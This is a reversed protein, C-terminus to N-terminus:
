ALSKSLPPHYHESGGLEMFLRHLVLFAVAGALSLVGSVVFTLQYCHGMADLLLGTAPTILIYGASFVLGWASAFQAFKMKPYLRQGLSATATMYSGSLVGHLVFFVGFTAASNTVFGGFLMLLGYLLSLVFGLRIPHFRDALAGLPYSLAMSIAYTLALCKGYGKLDMEMSTAFFLSFSNVPFSALAGFTAAAFLWRYYKQSFCERIYSRIEGWAAGKSKSAQQEVAPYSGERVRFCMLGFGLGYAAALGGIILLPHTEAHEIIWYNFVIAAVLGVMRFLAFFRGILLSPVVDNILGGFVTNAIISSIEFLSWFLVFVALRVTSLDPSFSGLFGHLWEGVMPSFGLGIMSIVVFPIPILLFPIRRGWAGRHRDSKVSVWPGLLMAIAAPFSGLLLGVLTDTSHLGKLMLQAIPVIAREKLNWAFDGWLLWFFLLFLGGTTYTLTGASWKRRSVPVGSGKEPVSSAAVTPEKVPEPPLTM